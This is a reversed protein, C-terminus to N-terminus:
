LHTEEEHSETDADIAALIRKAHEHQFFAVTMEQQDIQGFIAGKKGHVCAFDVQDFLTALERKVKPPTPLTIM